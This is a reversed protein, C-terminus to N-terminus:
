PERAPVAKPLMRLMEAFQRRQEVLEPPFPALDSALPYKLVVESDADESTHVRVVPGNAIETDTIVVVWVDCDRPALVTMFFEEGDVALDAGCGTIRAHPFPEGEIRGHLGTFLTDVSVQDCTGTEGDALGHWSISGRAVGYFDFRGTGSGAPVQAVLEGDILIARESGRDVIVLSGTVNAALDLDCTIIGYGQRSGPIPLGAAVDPVAPMAAVRNQRRAPTDVRRSEGRKPSWSARPDGERSSFWALFLGIATLFVAALAVARRKTM